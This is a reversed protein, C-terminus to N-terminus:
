VRRIFTSQVKAFPEYGHKCVYGNSWTGTYALFVAFFTILM